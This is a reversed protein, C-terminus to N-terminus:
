AVDSRVVRVSGGLGNKRFMGPISPVSPIGRNADPVVALPGYGGAGGGGGGPRTRGPFHFSFEVGEMGGDEDQSHGVSFRQQQQPLRAPMEEEEDDGRAQSHSRMFISADTRRPRSRSRSQGRGLKTPSSQWDMGAASSTTTDAAPSVMPPQNLPSPKTPSSRLSEQRRLRRGRIERKKLRNREASSPPSAAISALTSLAPAPRAPPFPAGAPTTAPHDVISNTTNLSFCSDGGGSGGLSSSSIGGFFNIGGLSSSTSSRQPPDTSGSDPGPRTSGLRWNFSDRLSSSTSTRLPPSELNGGLNDGADGDGAGFRSSSQRSITRGLDISLKSASKRLRKVLKRAGSEPKEDAGSSSNTTTAVGIGDHEYEYYDDYSMRGTMFSAQSDNNASTFPRKVGRQHQMLAVDISQPRGSEISFRAISVPPPRYPRQAMVPEAGPSTSSYPVSSFSLSPKHATRFKRTSSVSPPRSTSARTTDTGRSSTREPAISSFVAADSTSIGVPTPESSSEADDTEMEVAAAAAPPPPPPPPPPARNPPPPPPRREPSPPISRIGQSTEDQEVVRQAFSPMNTNEQQRHLNQGPPAFRTSQIAHTGFFGSALLSQYNATIEDRSPRKTPDFGPIAPIAGAVPNSFPPPLATTNNTASKRLQIGDADEKPFGHRSEGGKKRLINAGVSESRKHKFVPAVFFGSSSGGASGDEEEEEVEGNRSVVDMSSQSRHLGLREKVQAFFGSAAPRPAKSTRMTTLVSASSRVSAFSPRHVPGNDCGNAALDLDPPKWDMAFQREYEATSEAGPGMFDPPPAASARDNMSGELFRSQPPPPAM